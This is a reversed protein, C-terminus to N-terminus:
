HAYWAALGEEPFVRATAVLAPHVGLEVSYGPFVVPLLFLVLLHVGELRLEVLLHGEHLPHLFLHLLM